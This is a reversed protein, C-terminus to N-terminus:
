ILVSFVTGKPQNDKVTVTGNHAEIVKKVIYLGLGTGITKRTDENGIRYFKNFIKNRESKQIGVGEDIIEVAVQDKKKYLKVNIKESNEAYKVANELLNSFATSLTSREGKALIIENEAPEFIIKGSYKPRIWAICEELLENMHVESFSYEYGGEVRAALLLDQVLKHLRDNDKLGNTSLKQLQEATLQRKQITELVLQVSAIPSKLEHTISLLFNQQQLAIALEKQRIRYIRWLGVLLILMFVSGEGIIMWRQRKYRNLVTKMESNGEIDAVGELKLKYRIKELQANKVELNKSHLLYSWWSGAALIYIIILYFLINGSKKM